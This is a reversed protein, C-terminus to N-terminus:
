GNNIGKTNNKSGKIVLYGTIIASIWGTCAVTLYQPMGVFLGTVLLTFSGIIILTGFWAPVVFDRFLKCNGM